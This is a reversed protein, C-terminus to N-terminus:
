APEVQGGKLDIFLQGPWAPTKKKIGNGIGIMEGPVKGSSGRDSAKLAYGTSVRRLVPVVQRGGKLDIRSGRGRAPAEKHRMRIEHSSKRVGGTQVKSRKARREGGCPPDVQRGGKLDFKM